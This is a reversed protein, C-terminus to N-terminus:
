PVIVNHVTSVVRYYWLASPLGGAFVCSVFNCLPSLFLTFADYPGTTRNLPFNWIVTEDCHGPIKDSFIIARM